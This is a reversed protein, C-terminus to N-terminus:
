GFIVVGKEGLGRMVRDLTGVTWDRQGRELRSLFSRDLDCKNALDQITM